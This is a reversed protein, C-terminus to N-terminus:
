DAAADEASALDKGCCEQAVQCEDLEANATALAAEASQLDRRLGAILEELRRVRETDRKAIDHALRAAELDARAEGLEAKLKERGRAVEETARLEREVDRKEALKDSEDATLDTVGAVLTEAEALQAAVQERLKRLEGLRREAVDLTSHKRWAGRTTVLRDVEQSVKSEIGTDDRQIQESLRDRLVDLVKAHVDDIELAGQDSTWLIQALGIRDDGRIGRTRAGSDDALWMEQLMRDAEDGEAITTYEKAGADRRQLKSERASKAGFKKWARYDHGGHQFWLSIGASVSRGWPSEGDIQKGSARHSDFVARRLAVSLTTKGGGNDAHLVNLGPRFGNIQVPDAYCRFGEIRISQIIM